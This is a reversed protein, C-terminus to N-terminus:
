KEIAVAETEGEQIESIEFANEGNLMKVLSLLWLKPSICTRLVVHSIM